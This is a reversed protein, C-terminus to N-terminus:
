NQGSDSPDPISVKGTLLSIKQSVYGKEEDPLDSMDMLTKIAECLDRINYTTMRGQLLQSSQEDAQKDSMRPVNLKFGESLGALKARQQPDKYASIPQTSLESMNETLFEIEKQALLGAIKKGFDESFVSKAMLFRHLIGLPDKDLTCYKFIADAAYDDMMNSEGSEIIKRMQKFQSEDIQDQDEDTLEDQPRSFGDEYATNLDNLAQDIEQQPANKTEDFPM